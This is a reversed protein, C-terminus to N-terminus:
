QAGNTLDSLGYSGGGGRRYFVCLPCDAHREDHYGHEAVACDCDPTHREDQCYETPM